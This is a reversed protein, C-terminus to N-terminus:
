RAVSAQSTGWSKRADHAHTHMSCARWVSARPTDSPPCGDSRSKRYETHRKSLNPPPPSHTTSPITVHICVLRAHRICEMSKRDISSLNKTSVGGGGHGVFAKDLLCKRESWVKPPGLENPVPNLCRMIQTGFPTDLSCEQESRIKQPSKQESSRPHPPPVAIHHFEKALM